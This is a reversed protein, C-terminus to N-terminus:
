KLKTDDACTFNRQVGNEIKIISKERIKNEWFVCSIYIFTVTAKDKAQLFGCMLNVIALQFGILKSSVLM